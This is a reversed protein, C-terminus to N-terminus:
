DTDADSIPAFIEIARAITVYPAEKVFRCPGTMFRHAYFDYGFLLVLRLFRLM